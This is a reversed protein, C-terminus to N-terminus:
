RCTNLLVSINNDDENAVVIDLRGDGNLDALALAYAGNGTDFTVPAAYGGTRRARLVSVQSPNRSDGNNAVVVDPLGDSDIDGVTSQFPRNNAAFTQRMTFVGGGQNLMVQIVSDDSPVILDPKGDRDVDTVSVWFSAPANYRTYPAFTGDGRGKAVSVTDSADSATVLDLKADGDLDAISVGEAGFDVPVSTQAGFAGMGQGLLVSVAAGNRNGLAIDPRGDGNLDDVAMAVPGAGAPYNRAAAFSGAGRNSLVSVSNATFNAAIIDPKSDADVDVLAVANAGEGATFTVSAALVGQGQNRLIGVTDAGQHAVVVDPLRDGDLDAAAVARPRPGVAYTVQPAFSLNACAQLPPMLVTTSASGRISEQLVDAATVMQMGPTRLILTGTFSIKGAVAAAAPALTAAADTSSLRVTGTYDAAENGYADKAVVMVSTTAGAPTRPPLDALSFTAAPAPRVTIGSRTAELGPSHLDTVTLTHGAQATVLTVSATHTAASGTYPVDAPLTAQPDSSSFHLLGEYTSANGNSLTVTVSAPTGATLSSTALVLTLGSEAAPAGGTTGEGRTGARAAGRLAELGRPDLLDGCAPACALTALICHKLLARRM